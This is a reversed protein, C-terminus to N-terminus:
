QQWIINEGSYDQTITTSSNLTREVTHETLHLFSGSADLSCCLLAVKYINVICDNDGKGAEHEEQLKLIYTNM